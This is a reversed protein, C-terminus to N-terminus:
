PFAQTFRVCWYTDRVKRWILQRHWILRRFVACGYSWPGSWASTLFRPITTTFSSLFVLRTLQLNWCRLREPRKPGINSQWRILFLTFFPTGFIMSPRILLQVSLWNTTIGMIASIRKADQWRSWM